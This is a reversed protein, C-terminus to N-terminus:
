LGGFTGARVCGRTLLDSDVVAIGNNAMLLASAHAVACPQGEMDIAGGQQLSPAVLHDAQATLAVSHPSLLPALARLLRPTICDNAESLLLLNLQQRCRCHPSASAPPLQRVHIAAPLAAPQSLPVHYTIHSKWTCTTQMALRQGCVM